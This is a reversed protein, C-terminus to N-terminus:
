AANCAETRRYSM